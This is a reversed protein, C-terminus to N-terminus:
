QSEIPGTLTNHGQVQCRLRDELGSSLESSDRALRNLATWFSVVTFGQAIWELQHRSGSRENSFKLSWNKASAGRPRISWFRKTGLNHPQRPLRAPPPQPTPVMNWGGGPVFLELARSPGSFYCILKKSENIYYFVPRSNLFQWPKM